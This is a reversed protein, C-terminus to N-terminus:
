PRGSWERPAEPLSVLEREPGNRIMMARGALSDDHIFQVVIDAIEEPAILELTEFFATTAENLAGGAERTRSFM